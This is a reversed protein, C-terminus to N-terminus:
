AGQYQDRFTFHDWLPDDEPIKYITSEQVKSLPLQVELVEFKDNIEVVVKNVTGCKIFERL